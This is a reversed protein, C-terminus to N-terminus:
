IIFLNILIIKTIKKKQKKQNTNNVFKGRENKKMAQFCQGCIRHPRGIPNPCRHIDDRIYDDCIISYV